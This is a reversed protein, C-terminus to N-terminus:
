DTWSEITDRTEQSCGELEDVEEIEDESQQDGNRHASPTRPPSQSITDQVTDGYGGPGGQAMSSVPAPRRPTVPATGPSETTPNPKPKVSQNETHFAPKTRASPSDDEGRLPSVYIGPAPAFPSGRPRAPAASRGQSFVDAGLKNSRLTALTAPREITQEAHNSPPTATRAKETPRRPTSPPPQDRPPVIWVFPGGGEEVGRQSREPPTSYRSPTPRDGRSHSPNDQELNQSSVPSRTTTCRPQSISDHQVSRKSPSTASSFLTQAPQSWFMEDSGNATHTPPSSLWLASGNRDYKDWKFDLGDRLAAQDTYKSSLMAHPRMPSSRSMNSDRLNSPYLVTTSPRGLPLDIVSPARRSDPLTHHHAPGPSTFPKFNLSPHQVIPSRAPSISPSIAFHHATTRLSEVRWVRRLSGPTEVLSLPSRLGPSRAPSLYTSRGPSAADASLNTASASCIEVTAAPGPKSFPVFALPPALDLSSNTLGLPSNQVIMMSFTSSEADYLPSRSFSPESDVTISSAPGPTSFPRLSEAQVKADHVGTPNRSHSGCAPVIDDMIAPPISSIKHMCSDPATFAFPSEEAEQAPPPDSSPALGSPSSDGYVGTRGPVLGHLPHKSDLTSLTGRLWSPLQQQQATHSSAEEPGHFATPSFMDAHGLSPKPAGMKMVSFEDGLRGGGRSSYADLPSKPVDYSTGSSSSVARGHRSQRKHGSRPTPGHMVNVTRIMQDYRSNM